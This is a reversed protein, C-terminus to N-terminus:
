KAEPPNKGQKTLNNRYWKVYSRKKDELGFAAQVQDFIEDDTLEGAMILAQFMQAASPYGSSSKAKRVARKARRRTMSDPSKPADKVKRQRKPKEVKKVPARKSTATERDADSVKVLKALHDIVEASAGVALSYNLYLAAAKDIPYNPMAQYREDFSPRTTTHVQFGESIDMPIFEVQEGGQVLLCTCGNHDRYVGVDSAGARKRRAM